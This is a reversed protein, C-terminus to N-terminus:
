NGLKEQQMPKEVIISQCTKLHNHLCTTSGRTQLVKSCEVKRCKAHQGKVERLFYHWISTTDASKGKVEIFRFEITNQTNLQETAM